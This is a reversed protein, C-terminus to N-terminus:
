INLKKKRKNIRIIIRIIRKAHIYIGEKEQERPGLTNPGIEKPDFKNIFILNASGKSPDPRSPLNLEPIPEVKIKTKETAPVISALVLAPHNEDDKTFPAIDSDEGEENNIEVVEKKEKEKEKEEEKITEVTGTPIPIKDEEEEKVIEEKKNDEELTVEKVKEVVKDVKEDLKVQNEEITTM